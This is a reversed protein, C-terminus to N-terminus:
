FSYILSSYILSSFFAKLNLIGSDFITFRGENSYIKEFVPLHQNLIFESRRLCKWFKIDFSDDSHSKLEEPIRVQPVVFVSNTLTPGNASKSINNPPPSILIRNNNQKSNIEDLRKLNNGSIQTIINQRGSNQYIGHGQSPYQYIFPTTQPKLNHHTNHFFQPPYSNM